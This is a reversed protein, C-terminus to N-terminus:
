LKQPKSNQGWTKEAALQCMAKILNWANKTINDFIIINDDIIINDYSISNSKLKAFRIFSASKDNDFILILVCNIIKKYLVAM